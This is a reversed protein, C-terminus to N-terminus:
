LSQGTAAANDRRRTRCPSGPPASRSHSILPFWIMEPPLWGKEVRAQPQFRTATPSEVAIAGRVEDELVAAALHPQPLHDPGLDLRAAALQRWGFQPQFTTPAPSKLVAKDIQHKLIRPGARQPTATSILGFNENDSGTLHQPPISIPPNAHESTAMCLNMKQTSLLFWNCNQTGHVDLRHGIALRV